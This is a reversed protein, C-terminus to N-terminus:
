CESEKLISDLNVQEWITQNFVKLKSKESGFNVRSHWKNIVSEWSSHLDNQPKVVEEWSIISSSKRKKTAKENNSGCQTNLAHLSESLLDNLVNSNEYNHPKIDEESLELEDLLPYQNVIDLTQQLSIRFALIKEHLKIQNQAFLADTDKVIGDEFM